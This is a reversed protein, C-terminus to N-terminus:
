SPGRAQGIGYIQGGRSGVFIMGHWVAPTSEVCGNLQINWLEKPPSTPSSIDYDHLLGSCDGILLQNDIAVPSMWANGPLKVSYYVQGTKADIAVFEGDTLTDYVVGQYLAPTGLSGQGRDLSGVHASWVVPNSPNHPDLKMITGIEQDRSISQPRPFNDEIHRAVYLYGQPDIVVSSDIDGGAWFRFVEKYHTGGRLIDRIDWGEVLGGSNGFYAVGDHFSVSSEISVDNDGIANFLQTDYGPVKMVIKPNVQVMRHADYHRHLRIVYFWSNEGGELLYDGIQLPAGDWDNNWVPNPVSTMADVSWLVTPKARDMAIVRLENDRSGGYYLPYGQSDSTASGKALDGTQLSPRLAQGTMGNLFHYAGDYAGERVEITGDPHQIVNPQGTWGTGCWEQAKGQFTIGNDISESCMKGTAPYQWRIAPDSPLPGEGYYDRSANGRFTTLGPFSTNIPGQVPGPGPLVAPTGSGFVHVTGVKPPFLHRWAKRALGTKVSVIGVSTAVLLGVM